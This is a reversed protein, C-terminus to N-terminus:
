GKVSGHRYQTTEMEKFFVQVIEGLFYKEPCTKAGGGGGGCYHQDFCRQGSHYRTHGEMVFRQPATHAVNMSTSCTSGTLKGTTPPAQPRRARLSVTTVRIECSLDLMLRPHDVAFRRHAVAFGRSATFRGRCATGTCERKNVARQLDLARHHRASRLAGEFDQSSGGGVGLGASSDPVTHPPPPYQAEFPRGTARRLPVANELPRPNQVTTQRQSLIPTM